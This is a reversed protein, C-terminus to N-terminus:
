LHIYKGYGIGHQTITGHQVIFPIIDGENDDYDDDDAATAHTYKYHVTFPIFTVHM